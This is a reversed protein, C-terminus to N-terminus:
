GQRVYSVYKQFVRSSIRYKACLRDMVLTKRIAGFYDSRIESKLAVIEQQTLHEHRQRQGAHLKGTM